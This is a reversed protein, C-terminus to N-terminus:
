FGPGNSGGAAAPKTDEDGELVEGTEADIIDKNANESLEDELKAEPTRGDTDSTLVASMEVSMIGYKSLIHIILTKMAMKDFDTKWASKDFKYSKSYRKAHEVVEDATWYITKKFGNHLEIYSFYGIITDSKRDGALDVDGTLKNRGQFEGEYVVDVNIYKYQGTRQALQVYGKWGMQFQPIQETEWKNGVKRKKGYPIVWAFGLSKNIPLKLTAAKLAEMVVLNPACLQLTKDSAYLDILSATFLLASDALANKFQSQVSESSLVKKLSDVPTVATEQKTTIEKGTTM